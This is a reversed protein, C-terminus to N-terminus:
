SASELNGTTLRDTPIQRCKRACLNACRVDRTPLWVRSAADSNRPARSKNPQSSPQTSFFPQLSVSTRQGTNGDTVPKLLEILASCTEPCLVSVMEFIQTGVPEATRSWGLEERLLDRVVVAQHWNDAVTNLLRIRPLWNAAERVYAQTKMSRNIQSGYLRADWTHSWRVVKGTPDLHPLDLFITATRLDYRREGLGRVRLPEYGDPHRQSRQSQFQNRLLAELWISRTPSQPIELLLTAGHKRGGSVMAIQEKTLPLFDSLESSSNSFRLFNPNSRLM